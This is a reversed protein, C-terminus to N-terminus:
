KEAGENKKFDCMGYIFYIAGIGIIVIGLPNSLNAIMIAGFAILIIGYLLKRNKVLENM